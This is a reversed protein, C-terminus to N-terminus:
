REYTMTVSVKGGNTMVVGSFANIGVPPTYTSPSNSYITTSWLLPYSTFSSAAASNTTRVNALFVNTELRGVFNTYINTYQQVTWTYNTYAANTFYTNTGSADYFAVSIPNINTTSVVIQHVTSRQNFLNITQPAVSTLNTSLNFVVANVHIALFLSAITLIKTLKM